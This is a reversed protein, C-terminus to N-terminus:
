PTCRRGIGAIEQLRERYVRAQAVTVLLDLSAQLAITTERELGDRLIERVAEAVDDADEPPCVRLLAQDLENDLWTEIGAPLQPKCHITPPRNGRLGGLGNERDTEECGVEERKWFPSFLLWGALIFGATIILVAPGTMTDVTTGGTV